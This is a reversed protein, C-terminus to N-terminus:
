SLQLPQGYDEDTSFLTDLPMTTLKYHLSPATGQLMTYIRKANSKCRFIGRISTQGEDGHWTIVYVESLM